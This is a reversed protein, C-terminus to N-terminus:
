KRALTLAFDGGADTWQRVVELGARTLEDRVQDLTFKTSVETRIWEGDALHVEVDGLQPIHVAQDGQAVLRMEIRSHEPVWVAAHTFGSADFDAGLDRNLVKLANLNFAATVGAADNYAVELRAVDKVLDTGLLIYDGSRTAGALEVLFAAREVPEFNGITSGLFAILRRGERPLYQLHGTFDGVIGSVALDPYTATLSRVSARLLAESCDMPTFGRLSGHNRLARILTRTKDSTGSGLEILLHPAALRAIEDAHDLLISREAETPYYEPLRTIQDFLDSGTEDYFWVPPITPPSQALGARTEDALHSSWAAPDLYVEVHERAPSESASEESVDRALRLGSFPWRAHAPFFNRYTVRSHQLPTVCAGGRLVYQNVMFKGNYEGVPGPLPVFGPYPTYPSATWQWVEGFFQSPGAVAHRARYRPHLDDDLRDDSAEAQRAVVEWEAESPLRCGAWRAFAEAEFWSVHVVPDLENVPKLGELTFVQWGSDTSVWYDPAEWGENKVTVWGEMHWYEHNHYGGAAMFDLWQGCTVLRDAVEFPRLFEEHRPSENDYHFGDGDHGIEVLGGSHRTWTIDDLARAQIAAELNRPEAESEKYAPHLPNCWLLDKLDMLILEQHQEEHHSGLELLAVVEPSETAGVEIARTVAADVYRRYEAIEDVSPRTIMGRHARPQRSGVVEFYSNFLFRFSEDFPEYGEFRSLIFEEFFWSTHARHWKTPSCDPQSQVQQDEPSLPAALAETRARVTRFRTLADAATSTTTATV